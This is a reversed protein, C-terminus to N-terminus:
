SVIGSGVGAGPVPSPPAAGTIVVAGTGVSKIHSVIGNSIANCFNVWHIGTFAPASTSIALSMAASNMTSASFSVAGAGVYVPTHTSILIAAGLHTILSDSISDTIDKLRAGASGFLATCNNYMLTSLTGSVLGTIALGSGTGPNSVSGVDVTDFTSGVIGTNIGNGLATTFNIFQPGVVGGNYPALKTTLSTQILGTLVSAILAM